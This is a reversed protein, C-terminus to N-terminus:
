TLLPLKHMWTDPTVLATNGGVSIGSGRLHRHAVQPSDVTALGIRFGFPAVREALEDIWSRKFRKSSVKCDICEGSDDKACVGVVDVSTSTDYRNGSDDEVRFKLNNELTDAAGGYRAQITRQVLAEVIVGRVVGPDHLRYLREISTCVDNIPGQESRKPAHVNVLKRLSPNRATLAGESHFDRVVHTVFALIPRHAHVAEVIREVSPDEFVKRHVDEVELPTIKV